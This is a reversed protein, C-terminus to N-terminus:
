TPPDLEYIVIQFNNETKANTGSKAEWDQEGENSQLNNDSNSIKM